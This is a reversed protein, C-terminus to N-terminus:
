SHFFEQAKPYMDIARYHNGDYYRADKSLAEALSQFSKAGVNEGRAILTLYSDISRGISCIKAILKSLVFLFM